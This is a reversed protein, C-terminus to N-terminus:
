GERTRELSKNPPSPRTVPRCVLPQGSTTAEAQLAEAVAQAREFTSTAILKGGKSHIELMSRIAEVESMEAHARLAEVVFKMKTVTDNLIEIGYLFGDPVFEPISLLSTEPPFVVTTEPQHAKFLWSLANRLGM